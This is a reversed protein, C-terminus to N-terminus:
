YKMWKIISDQEYDVFYVKFNEVNSIKFKGDIFIAEFVYGMDTMIILGNSVDPKVKTSYWKHKKMM